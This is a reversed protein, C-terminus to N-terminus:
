DKVASIKFGGPCLYQFVGNPDYKKAVDKMKKVNAEGYSQFVEQIPHAYNATTWNLLGDVSIAYERLAEYVRRLRPLAWAELQTTKVMVHFGWIIGDSKHQEMGMINGGADASRQIFSLPLPQFVCQTKFDGDEIHDQLDLVLSDHLEAAKMIIAADNKFCMTFWNGYYQKAQETTDLLGLITDEKHSKWIEPFALWKDLIPPEVVGAMNAYLAAVITNPKPTLKCLMCVLNTDPDDPVRKVFDVIAEAAKPMIAHPLMAGGGWITSCPFARMTFHTVIGFNNGGGKLALFLDAHEGAAAATVVQGNALVVEYSVVQDCAFGYRATFLTIGGTLALGAIGVSAERAAGVAREHKLLKEYILSVGAGLKVTETNPDYEVANMNGLDITFGGAINNSPWFNSGGSRVDFRENANVLAKIATSVEAASQPMLIAAPKLKASNNFYSDIRAMYGDSAPLLIRSQLGAQVLPDVQNVSITAM